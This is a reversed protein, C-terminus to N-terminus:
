GLYLWDMVEDEGSILLTNKGKWLTHRILLSEAVKPASIGAASILNALVKNTKPIGLIIITDGQATSISTISEYDIKKNRLATQVKSLGYNAAPGLPGETVLSITVGQASKIPFSLLLIFSVILTMQKSSLFIKQNYQKM